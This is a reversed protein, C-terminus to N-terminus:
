LKDKTKEISFKITKIDYGRSEMEELFTKNFLGYYSTLTSIVFGADSKDAGSGGWAIEIDQKKKSWCLKIQGPFAKM